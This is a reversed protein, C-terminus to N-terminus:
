NNVLVIKTINRGLEILQNYDEKLAGSAINRINIGTLNSNKIVKQIILRHNKSNFNEESILSNDILLQPINENFLLIEMNEIFDNLSKEQEFVKDVLSYYQYLMSEIDSGQLKGLYGSNKLAEFGSQDSRFYQDNFVRFLDSGLIIIEEKTWNDKESLKLQRRSSKITSDRFMKMEEISNIDSNINKSINNLYGQLERIEKKQTNWNNIQLAILIGIVVLVIEGFIYITYRGFENKTILDLRIKRFFKIM